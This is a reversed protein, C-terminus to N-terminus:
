KLKIFFEYGNAGRIRAPLKATITQRSSGLVLLVLVVINLMLSALTAMDSLDGTLAIKVISILTLVFVGYYAISYKSMLGVALALQIVGLVLLTYDVTEATIADYIAFIAGLALLIAALTLYLSKGKLEM